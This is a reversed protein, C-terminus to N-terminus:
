RCPVIEISAPLRDLLLLFSRDSKFQALTPSLLQITGTEFPDALRGEPPAARVSWLSGAFDIVARDLGCHTNIRIAVSVGALVPSSDPQVIVRPDDPNPSASPVSPTACAVTVGTLAAALTLRTVFALRLRSGVASLESTM